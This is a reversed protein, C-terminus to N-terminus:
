CFNGLHKIEGVKLLGVTAILYIKYHTFDLMHM